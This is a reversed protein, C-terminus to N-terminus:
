PVVQYAMKFAQTSDLGYGLFFGYAIARQENDKRADLLGKSAVNRVWIERLEQRETATM